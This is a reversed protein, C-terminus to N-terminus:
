EPRRILQKGKSTIERWGASSLFDFKGSEVKVLWISDEADCMSMDYADKFGKATKPEGEPVVCIQLSEGEEIYVRRM